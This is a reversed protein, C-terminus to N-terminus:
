ETRIISNCNACKNDIICDDCYKKDCNNCSKLLESPIPFPGYVEKCDSNQCTDICGIINCKDCSSMIHYKDNCKKCINDGCEKCTILKNECEDCYIEARHDDYYHEEMCKYCHITKENDCECWISECKSCRNYQGRQSGNSLSCDYFESVKELCKTHDLLKEYKESIKNDDDRNYNIIIRVLETLGLFECAILLRGTITIDEIVKMDVEKDNIWDIIFIMDIELIGNPLTGISIINNETENLLNHLISMDTIKKDFHRENMGLQGFADISHREANQNISKTYEIDNISYKITIM